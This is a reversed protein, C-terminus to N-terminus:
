RFDDDTDFPNHNIQSKTIEEKRRRTPEKYEIKMGVILEYLLDRTKKHAEKHISYESQLIDHLKGEDYYRLIRPLLIRIYKEDEPFSYNLLQNAYSKIYQDPNTELVTRFMGTKEIEYTKEIDM